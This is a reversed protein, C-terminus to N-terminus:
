HLPHSDFKPVAVGELVAPVNGDLPHDDFVLAAARAAPALALYAESLRKLPLVLVANARGPGGRRADDLAQQRLGDDSVRESNTFMARALGADVIRAEFIRYIRVTVVGPARPNATPAPRNEVIVGVPQQQYQEPRLRVRLADDLEETLERGPDTELVPDDASTLHALCFARVAEWDAPRILIRFDSEARSRESDFEFDGILAQLPAPDRLRIGGGFPQTRLLARPRGAVSVATAKRELALLWEGSRPHEVLVRALTAVSVRLSLESNPGSPPEPSNDPPHMLPLLCYASTLLRFDSTLLCAFRAAPLISSAPLLLCAFRASLLLCDASPPYRAPIRRALAAGPWAGIQPVVNSRSITLRRDFM